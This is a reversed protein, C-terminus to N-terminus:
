ECLKLTWDCNWAISLVFPALFWQPCSLTKIVNDVSGTLSEFLGFAITGKCISFYVSYM